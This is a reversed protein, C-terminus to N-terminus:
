RKGNHTRRLRKRWLPQVALLLALVELCVGVIVAPTFILVTGAAACLTALLEQLGFRGSRTVVALGERWEPARGLALGSTCANTTGLLKM